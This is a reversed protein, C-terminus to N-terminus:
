RVSRVLVVSCLMCIGASLRRAAGSSATYKRSNSDLINSYRDHIVASISTVCTGNWRPVLKSLRIGSGVDFCPGGPGCKAPRHKRPAIERIGTEGLSWGSTPLMDPRRAMCRGKENSGLRVVEDLEGEFCSTGQCHYKLAPNVKFDFAVLQKWSEASLLPCRSSFKFYFSSVVL